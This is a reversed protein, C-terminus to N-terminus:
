EIVLPQPLDTDPATDQPTDADPAIPATLVPDTEIGLAPKPALAPADGLRPPKIPLSTAPSLDQVLHPADGNCGMLWVDYVSDELTSLAPSSAYMWGSFAVRKEQGPHATIIEVFMAAEPPDEPASKFCARLTLELAGFKVLQNLPLTLKQPRATIKDLVRVQAQVPTPKAAAKAAAKDPEPKAAPPNQKAPAAAVKNTAGDLAGDVAGDQALAPAAVACMFFLLFVWHQVALRISICMAARVKNHRPAPVAAM